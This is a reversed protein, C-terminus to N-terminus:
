GLLGRGTEQFTTLLAFMREGLEVQTMLIAITGDPDVFFDTGAGGSWGVRGVHEGATVVSLGYGWGTSDWFGPFFSEPTKAEVATQDSTMEQVWHPDLFPEGDVRGGDALMRVFRHYDAATSVLEGHATDFPPAGVYFGGAMPELEQLTGDVDRYAAPLREAKEAPVSLGTDPMGLPDFLVARLHEELPVGALRQLLIGLLGFSHHYRFGRGPQVILPLTALRALWDDAADAVPDPGAEVGSERMAAVIPANGFQVGYGSGNVLLDRVTIPREAPVVDDLASDPTRLVQRHTLEPLWREIPDDLTLDGRQVALLAAVTTVPKTMSQIRIIADERLPPGGLAADGLALTRRQDGRAVLVIAGPLAGAEMRDRLAQEIGSVM